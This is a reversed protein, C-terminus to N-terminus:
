QFLMGVTEPPFPNHDLTGRFNVTGSGDGPSIVLMVALDFANSAAHYTLTGGPQITGSIEKLSQKIVIVWEGGTIQTVGGDTQNLADHSVGVLVSGTAFVTEGVQGVFKGAFWAKGGCFGVSQPCVEHANITGIIVPQSQAVATASAIVCLLGLLSLSVPRCM